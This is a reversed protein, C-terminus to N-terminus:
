EVGPTYTERDYDPDLVENDEEDYPQPFEDLDFWARTAKPYEDFLEKRAEDYSTASTQYSDIGFGTDYTVYISMNKM